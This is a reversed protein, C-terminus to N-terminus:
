SNFKALGEHQIGSALYARSYNVYRSASDELNKIEADTLRRKVQAPLGAVLSYEPIKEGERVLAGAAIISHHGIEAGDLVRAGMGILSLDRIVCGHVVAGHGITVGNGIILPWKNLTVHCMTLDQINTQKGIRIYNVDGRIVTNFWVSSEEGIEVDGIITANPAIFLGKAFKPFINNYSLIM